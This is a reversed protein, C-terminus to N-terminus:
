WVKSTKDLPKGFKKRIKQGATETGWMGSPVRYVLSGAMETPDEGGKHPVAVRWKETAAGLRKM